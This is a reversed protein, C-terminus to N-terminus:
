AVGKTTGTASFYAVLVKGSAGTGQNSSAASPSPSSSGQSSSAGCGTLLGLLLTAMIVTMVGRIQYIINNKNM